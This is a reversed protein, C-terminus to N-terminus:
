WVLLGAWLDNWKPKIRFTQQFSQKNDQPAVFGENYIPPAQSYNQEPKGSYDQMGYQQQQQQPQEYQQYQSQPPPQSPPQYQSHPPPQTPPQYQPQQYQQYGNQGDYYGTAEGRDAM